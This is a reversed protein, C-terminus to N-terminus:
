RHKLVTGNDPLFMGNNIDKTNDLETDEEQINLRKKRQAKLEAKFFDIKSEMEQVKVDINGLKLQLEKVIKLVEAYNDTDKRKFFLMIKLIAPKIRMEGRM